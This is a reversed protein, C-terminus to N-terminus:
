INELVKLTMAETNLINDDPLSAIDATRYGAALTKRVASEIADAAESEDLSWRLLMAASLITALPNAKGSGAIDPASGHVPEYM